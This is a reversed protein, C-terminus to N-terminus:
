VLGMHFYRIRCQNKKEWGQRERSMNVSAHPRCCWLQQISLAGRELPSWESLWTFPMPYALLGGHKCFVHALASLARCAKWRRPRQPPISFVNLNATGYPEMTPKWQLWYWKGYLPHPTHLSSTKKKEEEKKIQHSFTSCLAPTAWGQCPTDFLSHAKLM